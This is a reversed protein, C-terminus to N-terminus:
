SSEDEAPARLEEERRPAHVSGEEAAERAAHLRQQDQQRLAFPTRWTISIELRQIKASIEQKIRQTLSPTRSQKM